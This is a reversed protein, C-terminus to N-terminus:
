LADININPHALVHKRLRIATILYLVLAIVLLIPLSSYNNLLYEGSLEFVSM